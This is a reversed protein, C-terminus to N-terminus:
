PRRRSLSAVKRNNASTLRTVKREHGFPYGLAAARGGPACLVRKGRKALMDALKLEWLDSVSASRDDQEFTELARGFLEGQALQGRREIGAM